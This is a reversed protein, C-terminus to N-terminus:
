KSNTHYFTLIQTFAGFALAKLSGLSADHRPERMAKAGLAGMPSFSKKTYLILRVGHTVVRMTKLNPFKMRILSRNSLPLDDRNIQDHVITRPMLAIHQVLDKHQLESNWLDHQIEYTTTEM